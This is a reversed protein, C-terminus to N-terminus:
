PSAYPTVKLSIRTEGKLSRLRLVNSRRPSVRKAGKLRVKYGDRYVRWPLFVETVSGRPFRGKGGARATNYRLKFVRTGPDFHFAEPTGAVARPYPRVLMHALKQNVNDAIPSQNLDEVFAGKACTGFCMYDDYNWFLWSVMRRDARQLMPELASRQDTSGFESLLLADGFPARARAEANDFVKEDAADCGELSGSSIFSLCYDHFSFGLHPDEIKGIYTPVGINFFVHPEYYIMTLRDVARIAAIVRELFSTMADQDFTACGVQFCTLGPSGPIPENMIEYGVVDPNTAFRKAVKRWAAAYSDQLGVGNPGPDNARFHDWARKQAPNAFYDVASGTSISPLGDTQVMWDPLGRGGVADSYKDQHFDLITRVGHSGLINVTKEIRGLYKRDWLGPQPELLGLWVGLRVVSLGQRALFVADDNGFGLDSPADTERDPVVNIGRIIVVRGNADTIWRGANGYPTKPASDAMSAFGMWGLWAAVLALLWCWRGIVRRSKGM